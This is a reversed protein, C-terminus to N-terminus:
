ENQPKSLIYSFLKEMMAQQQEQQQEQQQQQRQLMEQMTAQQEQHQQQFVKIFAETQVRHLELEEKRLELDDRAQQTFSDDAEKRSELFTELAQRTRRRKRQQDTGSTM